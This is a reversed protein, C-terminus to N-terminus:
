IGGIKKKWSRAFEELANKCLGMGQERFHDPPM